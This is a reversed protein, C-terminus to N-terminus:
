FARVVGCARSVRACERVTAGGYKQIMDQWVVVGIQAAARADMACVHRRRARPWGTVCGTPM